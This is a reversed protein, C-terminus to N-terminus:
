QDHSITVVFRYDRLSFRTVPREAELIEAAMNGARSAAMMLM